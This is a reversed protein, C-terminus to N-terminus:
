ERAPKIAMVQHCNIFPRLADCEAMLRKVMHDYEDVDISLIESLPPKMNHFWQQLNQVAREGSKGGWQGLKILTKKTCIKTFGAEKLFIGLNQASCLSIGRCAFTHSIGIPGVAGMYNMMEGMEVLQVCGGPKTVRFIEELVKLWGDEPLAQSMNRMHVFDYSNDVCPFRELADHVLFEYNKPRRPIVGKTEVLDFATVHCEPYDQAMDIAWSESGCGVDLIKAGPNLHNITIPCNSKFISRLYFHVDRLRSAEEPTNPMMYLPIENHSKSHIEAPGIVFMHQQKRRFANLVFIDEELTSDLDSKDYIVSEISYSNRVNYEPLSRTSKLNLMWLQSGNEDITTINNSEDSQLSTLSLGLTYPEPSKKAGISSTPYADVSLRRKDDLPRTRYARQARRASSNNGFPRFSNWICTVHASFFPAM